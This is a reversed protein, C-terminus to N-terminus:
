IATTVALIWTAVLVRVNYRFPTPPQKSAGLGAQCNRYHTSTRPGLVGLMTRAASLRPGDGRGQREAERAPGCICPMWSIKQPMSPALSHGYPCREPRNAFLLAPM